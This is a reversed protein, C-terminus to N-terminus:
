GSQRNRYRAMTGKFFKNINEITLAHKKTGHTGILYVYSQMRPINKIIIYFMALFPIVVLMGPLGWMMSAVILSLIIVFPNLRVNHGVINPTLINNEVFHVIYVFIVVRLAYVSSDETLLAFALPISGGIFNGFYPIFSFIASIVGLLLFYKLGIIWYGLSNFVCLVLVVTLVGLMYRTVVKSIERLAGITIMRNNRGVLKLIFYAFKTRYYLFLFIFVPQMLIAFVTHTTASFIEASKASINFIQELLFNKLGESPINFNNELYLQLANMHSITKERFSPLEEMFLNIRKLIFAGMFGFVIALCLIGILIAVIRPLGKKELLNVFPYLLYSFLIGFALPYLFDRAVILGYVLLIITLMFYTLRMGPFQPKM